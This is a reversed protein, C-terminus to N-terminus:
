VHLLCALLRVCAHMCALRAWVTGGVKQITEVIGDFFV